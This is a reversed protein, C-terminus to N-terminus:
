RGSRRHVKNWLSTYYDSYGEEYKFLSVRVKKDLNVVAIDGGRFYVACRQGNQGRIDDVFAVDDAEDIVESMIRDYEDQGAKSRYEIGYEAAHKKAHWNRREGSSWYRVESSTPAIERAAIEGQTINAEISPRLHSRAVDYFTPTADANGLVEEALKVAEAAEARTRRTRLYEYFEEVNAFGNAKTEANLRTSASVWGSSKHGVKRMHAAPNTKRVNEPLEGGEMVKRRLEEREAASLGATADVKELQWWRERLEEPNVGEVLEADPNDEFGPVVKCDCHRHFHKFEGASKRTHYVAGRSALMICFTCTEFGAPVRAFRAGKDRDRGVNAVITENLSRFADNRAFEGCAKAFEADGGKALKKAQYRAVADVSEPEYTTMTIAQDLAVGSKQARHDYWEAAFEAAIDDYGQIYGEMILKAAERKEAVSASANARCWALVSSEVDSAAKDGIRAVARNYAAFEASSIM